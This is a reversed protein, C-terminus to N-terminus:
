FWWTQVWEVAEHFWCWGIPRTGCHVKATVTAGPRLQELGDKDIAVRLRLVSGEEEHPIISMDDQTVVGHRTTDPATALIYDVDLETKKEAEQALDVKGSRREPMFLELEWPGEPDAVTMLVQGTTVPRQALMKKVDWTIIQGSIPARVLLQEHKRLLIKEQEDLSSVQQRLQAREGFLKTREAASMNGEELITREVAALQEFATRKKGSVDSLQVELDPNRLQVLPDGKKVLQNHDFFVQDVIGGEVVFVDQKWEPQLAGKAKMTYPWPVIALAAFITLVVGAITLTKPLTRARVVWAAKGIARWVPMLFLNSHDLANSLARASHEYVLDVRPAIVERPLDSEIQEIILAGIVELPDTNEIEANAAAASQQEADASRPKRLPLVTVSKAYSEEVYTEIAEEVQPPLDDTAGEYWLPEGTAVVRTALKNLASVINSRNDLTDQGSIAEVICKNGKKFAVAVRDCGILRRGENAITYATERADLGEHVLRSFHDAQAWLSHRDSFQKLKRSKLWESAVDCMQMLFRLYGRQTVPQSDPRQFIEVVGEIAGDSKLMGLVLLLRTPNAGAAPDQGAALPPILRPEGSNMAAQLLKLHQATEESNPDLLTESLNQQCRKELRGSDGITWVAGGVAALSQIVRSLFAPFFEDAPLDSKSLQAIEAVLGRIQQKTQEITKPDISSM